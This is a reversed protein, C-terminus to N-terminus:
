TWPRIKLAQAARAIDKSGGFEYFNNYNANIKEPTIARDGINYKENRKGSYLDATPDPVDSARQADAVNPMLAAVATGATAALLARRNLYVGEPTAQREPIQWGRRHIINM